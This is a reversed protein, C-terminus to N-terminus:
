RIRKGSLNTGQQNKGTLTNYDTSLIVNDIWGGQQHRFTYSRSNRDTCEWRASNIQTSGSWVKLTGDGSIELQQGSVWSWRGAIVGPDFAASVGSIRTGSLSSGVQNRGTITKYDASLVVNDIWGGQQHRFTYSRSNRDTCEWRASNIQTNGSWVKLTGDDSIELQQGSVWSWRGAIVGPDFAASVGSIRTGSLSSGVQNRGTITKYDASLVVNDIWGGQQHMFTYSRSNRDTCEWRASNIQTGGSWVKLTGDDSIELQQGSVWSWRGAIVGPDFAASVGSIRTGALSSGVQNRGTITKYDASLVVNDIWGGQQHRFTYSRANIDTCVWSGSNIQSGNLWVKLTGDPFIELQQGSVWNWKGAIVEPDFDSISCDSNKIFDNVAFGAECIGDASGHSIVGPYAEASFSYLIILGSLIIRSLDKLITANKM